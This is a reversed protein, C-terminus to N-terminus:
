FDNESTSWKKRKKRISTHSAALFSQPPIITRGRGLEKQSENRPRKRDTKCQNNPPYRWELKSPRAIWPTMIRAWLLLFLFFFFFFCSHIYLAVCLCRYCASGRPQVNARPRFLLCVHLLIAAKFTRFAIHTHAANFSRAHVGLVPNDADQNRHQLM